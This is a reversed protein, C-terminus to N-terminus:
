APAHDPAPRRPRLLQFWIFLGATLASFAFWQAAYAHHKGVDAAPPPWDRRLAPGAAASPAAVAAAPEAGAPPSPAAPLPEPAAAPPDEATQQVTLVQLRLGTERSLADPTLNQRIPGPAAEAATGLEMRVSPWALLRGEVQRWGDPTHLPPLRHPERADRPLWGRQVALVRGDALALPTVVIFGAQGQHPRNDLWRTHAPLWRGQLTVRRALAGALAADDHPLRAAVLPPLRGQRELREAAETKQRARDLQWFGLRATVACVVLTALTILALSRRVPV